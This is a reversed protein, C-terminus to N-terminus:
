FNGYMFPDSDTKTIMWVSLAFIAAIIFDGVITGKLKKRVIDPLSTCLLLGPILYYWYRGLYEFWDLWIPYTEGQPIFPFLRCFFQALEGLDTFAFLTWSLPILLIMYIHGIVPIRDLIKKLFLKEISIVAFLFLGWLLFNLTSGHWIGTFLWVAFMNVFTRATGARSGGLPIYIHKKFWTGLTIHWRRWFETMSKSMYPARFNDPLTFGLMRGVGIAMLSYGAFDFYIYLSYAAIAMWALGASVSDWGIASVNKWMAGLQNALLTKFGLGVTFDRFGSLFGDLTCERSKLETRMASYETIPGATVSPFMIFWASFDALSYEACCKGASVDALYAVARFSNFSIGLPFVLRLSGVLGTGAVSDFLGAYKYFFLITFNFIVGTWMWFKRRRSFRGVCIGLLWNVAVTIALLILNQPADWVGMAYFLLSGFLLLLNRGKPPMIYYAALFFPLFLFIFDLSNFNM